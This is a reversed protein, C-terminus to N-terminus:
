SVKKHISTSSNKTYAINPLYYTLERTPFYSDRFYNNILQTIISTKGVESNGLVIIRFKQLKKGDKHISPNMEYEM